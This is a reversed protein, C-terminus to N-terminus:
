NETSDKKISIVGRPKLIMWKTFDQDAELGEGTLVETPTTIRVFKDTYIKRTNQDWILKETNLKENKVNLIQVNQWVEVKKQTQYSIGKEATIYSEVQGLKNYFDAKVGEPMKVIENNDKKYGILKPAFIIAKLVGSDSYNIKVNTADQTFLLTDAKLSEAVNKKAKEHSCSSFASVLLILFISFKM